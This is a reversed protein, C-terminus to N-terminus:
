ASVPATRIVVEGDFGGVSREFRLHLLSHNDQLYGLEKRMSQRLSNLLEQVSGDGTEAHARMFKVAAEIQERTGFLQIDALASEFALTQDESKERNAGAELRRYADLLYQMILDRRKNKLDRSANLRHVIYWGLMVVAAGVGATVLTQVFEVIM